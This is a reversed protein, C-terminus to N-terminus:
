TTRKPFEIKIFLLSSISVILSLILISMGVKYDNVTYHFNSGKSLNLIFGVGSICVTNGLMTITNILGTVTAGVNKNAFLLAAPFSLFQCSMAVGALLLIVYLAMKPLHVFIVLSFLTAFILSGMLMVKKYSRLRSCLYAALPGGPINGLYIMSTALAAQEKTFGYYHSLFSIGWADCFASTPGLMMMSFLGIWLYQHNSLITKLDSIVEKMNHGKEHDDIFSDNRILFLGIVSMFLGFFGALMVINKWYFITSLRALVPSGLVPGLSGASIAISSVLAVKEPPFCDNTAKMVLVFAFSSSFGLFLQAIAAVAYNKSSVFAIIGMSFLSFASILAKKVNLRDLIIGVPIQMITYALYFLSILSGMQAANIDFYQQLNENLVNPVASRLGYQYVYFIVCFLLFIIHKKKM